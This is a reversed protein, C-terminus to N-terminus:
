RQKAPGESVARVQRGLHVSPEGRIASRTDSGVEGLIGRDVFGQDAYQGAVM